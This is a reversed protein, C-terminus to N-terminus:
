LNATKPRSFDETISLAIIPLFTSLVQGKGPGKGKAKGERKARLTISWIVVIVVIVGGGVIVRGQEALSEIGRL